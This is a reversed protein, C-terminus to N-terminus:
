RSLGQDPRDGALRWAIGAVGMAEFVGALEFASRLEVSRPIHLLLVWLFIMVGALLAATRRLRPWLLGTGGALLAAATFLTWFRRGPPIWAPVLTDAFAAYAVHQMGALILFVAMLVAAPVTFRAGQALLLAGGTMALVKAPNTWVFGAGPNGLVGPVLSLLALLLMGAVALAAPRQRYGAVILVGAAVLVLGTAVGLGPRWPLWAPVAVLRVFEANVVQMLGSGALATGCAVRGATGVGTM